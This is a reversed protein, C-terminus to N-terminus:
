VKSSTTRPADMDSRAAAAWEDAERLAQERTIGYREQLKGVLQDKQGSLMTVDDDTLKAWRQKVSGKLQKWKGEFQDSNM